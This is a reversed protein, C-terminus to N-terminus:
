ALEKSIITVFESLYKLTSGKLIAKVRMDGTTHRYVLYNKAETILVDRVMSATGVTSFDFEVKYYHTKIHTEIKFMKSRDFDRPSVKDVVKVRKEVGFYNM